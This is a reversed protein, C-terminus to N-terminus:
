DTSAIASATGGVRTWDTGKGTWRWLTRRDASLRYVHRDGVTLAAGKPGIDKWLGQTGTYKMIHGTAPDTAFLGAGGAQLTDAPGGIQTWVDGEGTWQFVSKRDPSLGYVNKTGVAFSAGPNGVRTWDGNSKHRMLHGDEPRTAFLGAGGAYIHGVPGGVRTWKEPREYRMVADRGPTLAYLKEDTLAFEAGESGAFTWAGPTGDYRFIRGDVPDTAFIGAGGAYVKGAVGGIEAWTTGKGTWRLVKSQDLSVAYLPGSADAPGKLDEEPSETVAPGAASVRPKPAPTDAAGPSKKGTPATAGPDTGHSPSRSTGPQPNPPAGTTDRHEHVLFGTATAATGILAVAAALLIRRPRRPRRAPKKAPQTKAAGEAGEVREVREVKEAKETEKKPEPQAATGTEDILRRADEQQQELDDRLRAMTEALETGIGPPTDGQPPHAAQIDAVTRSATEHVERAQTLQHRALDLRPEAPAQQQLNDIVDLLRQVLRRSSELDHQAQQLSEEIGPAPASEAEAALAADHLRRAKALMEQRGRADRVRDKVVVNLRGLPILRAGSRYESWVTRGGKGDNDKYREALERVGLGDTLERLFRALENAAESTGKPAGQPRGARAM